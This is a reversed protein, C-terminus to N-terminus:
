SPPLLGEQTGEGWRQVQLANSVTVKLPAIAPRRKAGCPGSGARSGQQPWKREEEEEEEEVGAEPACEEAEQEKPQEEVVV